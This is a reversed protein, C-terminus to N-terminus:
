KTTFRRSLKQTRLRSIRFNEACLKFAKHEQSQRRWSDQELFDWAEKAKEIDMIRQFSEKTVGNQVKSLAYADKKREAEVKELEKITLEMEDEPETYGKGVYSWLGEAKLLTRM